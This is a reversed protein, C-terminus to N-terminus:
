LLRQLYNVMRLEAIAVDAINNKDQTAIMASMVFCPYISNVLAASM